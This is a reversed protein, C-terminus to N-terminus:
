NLIKIIEFHKKFEKLNLEILEGYHNLVEVTEGEIFAKYVKGALLVYKGRQAKYRKCRVLVEVM